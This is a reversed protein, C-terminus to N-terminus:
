GGFNIVTKTGEADEVEIASPEGDRDLAYVRRPNYVLHEAQEGGDGFGVVLVDDKDDYSIAALTASESEFQAGVDEGDVEVAVRPVPESRGLEDFFAKWEERPVERTTDAM